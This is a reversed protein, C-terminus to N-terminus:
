NDKRVGNYYSYSPNYSLVLEEAATPHVAITKDFDTKKIKAKVAVAIIQILEASSPGLLHVGVVYDTTGDVLMKMFVREFSGSITHKMPKFDICYVDLSKYLTKAEEESLGVKAIEPQAFVATAINEYDPKTKINHYITKIVCVADEIAVSALQLSGRVDGIAYIHEKNTTLYEDVLIQGYFGTDVGAKHLNLDITNPKRGLCLMVEDAVLGTGDSLVVSKKENICVVKEINNNNYIKIGKQQMADNLRKRLDYDFNRLFLENRHVLTVESGLGHFINAFEVATYGGGSLIISRPQKELFLGERSTICSEVGIIDDPRNPFSGTGIIIHKASLKEGTNLEVQNENLFTAKAKYLKVDSKLLNSKYIEQLRDLEKNKVQMFHQWNFKPMADFQWGFGRSQLFADKYESAYVFLKKPVCGRNVCTGGIRDNEILAVTKGLTTALRSARVGGSGAGIVLLDYDYSLM